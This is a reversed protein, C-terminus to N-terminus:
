SSYDIYKCTYWCQGTSYITGYSTDKGPHEKPGISKYFDGTVVAYAEREADNGGKKVFSRNMIDKSIM